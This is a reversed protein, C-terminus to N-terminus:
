QTASNLCVACNHVIRCLTNQVNMLKILFTMKRRCSLMMFKGLFVTLQLHLTYSYHYCNEHIKPM